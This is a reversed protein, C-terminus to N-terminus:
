AGIGEVKFMDFAFSVQFTAIGEQEYDLQIGGMEFPWVGFLTYLRYQNLGQGQPLTMKITAFRKYRSPSTSSTAWLNPNRELMYPYIEDRWDHFYKFADGKADDRVTVQWQQPLTRGAQKIQSHMYDLNQVNTVMVPTTTASICECNLFPGACFGALMNIGAGLLGSQQGILFAGQLAEYSGAILVQFLYQRFYDNIVTKNFQNISISQPM